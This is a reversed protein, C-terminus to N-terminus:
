WSSRTHLEALLAASPALAAHSRALRQLEARALEIRAPGDADPMRLVASVSDAADEAGARRLQAAVVPWAILFAADRPQQIDLALARSLGRRVLETDDAGRATALLDLEAGFHQRLWAALFSLFRQEGARALDDFQNQRITLL